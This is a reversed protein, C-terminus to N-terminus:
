ICLYHVEKMAKTQLGNEECFDGIWSEVTAYDGKPMANFYDVM